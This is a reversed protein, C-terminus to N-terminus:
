YYRGVYHEWCVQAYEDSGIIVEDTNPDPADGQHLLKTQTAKRSCYQCETKIEEIKDAVELLRKSGEFLNSKHNNKLGWCIVTMGHKTAALRLVDIEKETFFQVEDVLLVTVLQSWNIILAYLHELNNIPIASLSSGLRSEIAGEIGRTDVAPYIIKYNTGKYDYNTAVKILDQSKGSFMTGYKFYLNKM